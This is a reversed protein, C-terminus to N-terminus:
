ECVQISFRPPLLANNGGQRQFWYLVTRSSPISVFLISSDKLRVQLKNDPYLGFTQCMWSWNTLCSASALRANRELETPWSIASLVPLFCLALSAFCLTLSTTSAKLSKSCYRFSIIQFHQSMIELSSTGKLFFNTFMIIICKKAKLQIEQSFLPVKYIKTFKDLRFNGLHVLRFYVLGVQVLCFTVSGYPLSQKIM